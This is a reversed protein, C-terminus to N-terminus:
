DFKMSLIPCLAVMKNYIPMLNDGNKVVIVDDNPFAYETLAGMKHRTPLGYAKLANNFSGFRRELTQYKEFRNVKAGKGSPLRKFRHIYNVLAEKLQLPCTGKKNQYESKEYHRSHDINKNRYRSIQHNRSPVIDGSTIRKTMLDSLKMTIADPLLNEHANFGFEQKYEDIDMKHARLIHSNLNKYWKGCKYCQTVERNESQIKVGKFGIGNDNPILAGKALGVYAGGTPSEAYKVIRQNYKHKNKTFENEKLHEELMKKDKRESEWKRKLEIPVNNYNSKRMCSKSCYKKSTNTTNFTIGCEACKKNKGHKMYYSHKCKKTCFREGLKKQPIDKKCHCCTRYVRSMNMNIIIKYYMLQIVIAVSKYM